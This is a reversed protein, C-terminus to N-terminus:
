SNGSPRNKRLADAAASLKRLRHNLGSKGIPPDSMDGLEQLTADRYRLRLDATMRLTDPLTGFGGNKKLYEIDDIQKGSATVTKKLNSTECNVQRNVHNAIEKYIRQNEMNMVSAHAGMMTLLDTIEESDKLYVVFSKRRKVIGARFSEERLIGCIQNAQTGTGCVFELHYERAPDSMSGICIFAGRLFARRCCDNKILLSNVGKESSRISGDSEILRLMELIQTGPEDSGGTMFVRQGGSYQEEIEDVISEATIDTNGAAKRNIIITKRLLTFGKRIVDANDGTVSIRYQPGGSLETENQMIASLEAIRCHRATPIIPILEKKVDLSFSM